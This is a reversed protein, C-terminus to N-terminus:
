SPKDSPLSLTKLWPIRKFDADSTVVIGNKGALAAAFCDVYPLGFGSKLKAAAEAQLRDADVIQIPLTDLLRGLQEASRNGRRKALTYWVEGWNTAAIRLNTGERNAEELLKEVTEAGPGDTFYRFLANADLVYDRV